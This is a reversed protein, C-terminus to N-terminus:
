MIGKQCKVNKGKKLKKVKRGENRKLKWRKVEKCKKQRKVEFIREWIKKKLFIRKKIAKVKSKKM